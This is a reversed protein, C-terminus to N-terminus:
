PRRKSPVLSMADASSFPQDAPDQTPASPTEFTSPHQFAPYQNPAGNPPTRWSDHAFVNHSQRLGIPINGKWWQQEGCQSCTHAPQDGFNFAGLHWWRKGCSDCTHSHLDLTWAGVIGIGLAIAAVGLPGGFAPKRPPQAVIQPPQAYPPKDNPNPM